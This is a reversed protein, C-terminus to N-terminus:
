WWWRNRRRALMTLGLGLGVVTFAGTGGGCGAAIRVAGPVCRGQVCSSRLDCQSSDSCPLNSTDNEEGNMDAGGSGASADPISPLSADLDDAYAARALVLSASLLVLLLHKM